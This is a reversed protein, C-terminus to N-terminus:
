IYEDNCGSCYYGYREVGNFGLQAKNLTKESVCNSGCVDCDHINPDRPHKIVEICDELTDVALMVEDSVVIENGGIKIYLDELSKEFFELSELKTIGILGSALRPIVYDELTYGARDYGQIITIGSPTSYVWYNSPLYNKVQDVTANTSVQQTM